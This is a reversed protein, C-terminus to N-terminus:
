YQKVTTKTETDGNPQQVTTTKKYSSGNSDTDGVKASAECGVISGGVFLGLALLAFIRKM